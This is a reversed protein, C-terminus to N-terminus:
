GLLEEWLTTEPWGETDFSDRICACYYELKPILYPNAEFVAAEGLMAKELMTARDETASICSYKKVFYGSDYFKTVSEPINTYSGAYAFGAPQLAMWGEESYLADPRLRSDWDLRRDIVHSLEHFIVAERIRRGNIVLLHYGDCKRSFASTTSSVDAGSKPKLDDVIEIRVTEVEGYGLQAFFGAPYQSLTHELVDLADATAEPDTLAEATYNPYGRVCREAIRIDMSFRESLEAARDYLERPLIEGAPVTEPILDIPEGNTEAAPDWFLLRSIGDSYGLFFWGQWPESWVFSRCCFDDDDGGLIARSLFNGDADYLTLERDGYSLWSGDELLFLDERLATKEAAELETLIGVRLDLAYRRTALDSGVGVCTVIARDSTLCTLSLMRAELLPQIKSTALSLVLLTGDCIGYLTGADPSLFWIDAPMDPQLVEVLELDMSLLTVTGSGPDAVSIREGLIQVCARPGAEVTTQATLTLDEGSLLKLSLSEGHGCLLLSDGADCIQTVTMSEVADSPLYWLNGDPGMNEGGALPSPITSQPPAPTCGWLLVTMLILVILRRM